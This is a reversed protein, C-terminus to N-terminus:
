HVDGLPRRVCRHPPGHEVTALRAGRDLADEDLLGDVVLEDLEHGSAYAAQALAGAALAKVGVDPRATGLDIALDNSFMALAGLFM